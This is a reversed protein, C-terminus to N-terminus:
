KKLEDPRRPVDWGEGHKWYTMINRTAYFIIGTSFILFPFSLIHFYTLYDALLWLAFLFCQKWLITSGHKKFIHALYGWCIIFWLNFLFWHGFNLQHGALNTNNTLFSNHLVQLWKFLLSFYIIFHSVISRM